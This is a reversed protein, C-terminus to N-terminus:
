FCSEVAAQACGLLGSQTTCSACSFQSGGASYYCANASQNVCFDIMGGNPCSLLTGAQPDDSACIFDGNGGPTAGTGGTGGTGDWACVGTLYCDPDPHAIFGQEHIYSCTDCLDGLEQYCADYEDQHIGCDNFQDNCNLDLECGKKATLHKGCPNAGHEVVCSDLCPEGTFEEVRTCSMAGCQYHVRRFSCIPDHENSCYDRCVAEVEAPTGGTGDEGGTGIRGDGDGTSGCGVMLATFSILALRKM